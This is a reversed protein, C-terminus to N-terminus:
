AVPVLGACIDALFDRTRPRPIRYNEDPLMDLPLLPVFASSGTDVIVHADAPQSAIHEVLDDFRRPNIRRDKDSGLSQQRQAFQSPVRDGVQATRRQSNHAM